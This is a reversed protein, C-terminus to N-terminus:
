HISVFMVGTVILLASILLKFSVCELEKLYLHTFFLIFLPETQILSTVISVRGHQLAYFSLIWALSMGVGAKWFLRFDKGSFKSGRKNYSSFPLILYLLFTSFYGIAAGLLPENYINLGHKRIVFAFAVTLSALLPFVLGRRSIRTSGTKPKSLSREIFVVGVVICAMGIWYEPALTEGLLLVAFISSYMPYTAFVSANVSAGVVKMGKFYLPRAIGPALIGTIVFFLVGEVNVTRLNTFLLAFPWLIINGMVTVVWAVSFFNSKDVEKRVLVTSLSFALAALLALVIGIM